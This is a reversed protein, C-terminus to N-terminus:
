LPKDTPPRQLPQLEFWRAWFLNVVGATAFHSIEAVSEQLAKKPLLCHVTLYILCRYQIDESQLGFHRHADLLDFYERALQDSPAKAVELEDMELPGGSKASYYKAEVMVLTHKGGWEHLCLLLDPEGRELM